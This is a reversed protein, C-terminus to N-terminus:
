SASIGRIIAKHNGEKVIVSSSNSIHKRANNSSNGNWVLLLLTVDLVILVIYVALVEFSFRMVKKM